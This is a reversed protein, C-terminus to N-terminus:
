FSISIISFSYKNSFTLSTFLMFGILGAAIVRGDSVTSDGKLTGALLSSSVMGLEHGDNVSLKEAERSISDNKFSRFIWVLADDLGVGDSGM